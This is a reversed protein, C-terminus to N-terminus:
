YADKRKQWGREQWNFDFLFPYTQEIGTGRRGMALRKWNLIQALATVQVLKLESLRRTLYPSILRM